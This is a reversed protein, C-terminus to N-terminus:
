AVGRKALLFATVASIVISVCLAVLYILEPLDQYPVNHTSTFGSLATTIAIPILVMLGLISLTGSIAAIRHLGTKGGGGLYVAFIPFLSIVGLILNISVLSKM